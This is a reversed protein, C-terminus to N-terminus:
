GRDLEGTDVAVWVVLSIEELEIPPLAQPQKWPQYGREKVFDAIQKTLEEGSGEGATILKRLAREERVGRPAELADCIRDSEENGMEPPRYNRVHAAADRFVRPIKPALNAPDTAVTWEAMIDDRARQWASYAADRLDDPMVRTTEPGCTIARLCGLSDNVIPRIVDMPVFRMFVKDDIRACFFHGREKGRRLGSGAGGPIGTIAAEMGESLAKRLEQRYEEGSHANVDEGGTEFISADENRLRAIEEATEAFNRDVIQIGPIVEDDLGISAAAQALKVRIIRELNLMRDIQQDPFICTIWVDSHPSGIRDVRGHRQVLRMPNWPLDYNIIRAAQQLNMGEALVDTTILIDFRDHAKGSPAESSVPAFGYVAERRSVDSYGESGRVVALRGRYAALRRDTALKDELFEAIWEVTDAFYSFILVKRRNRTDEEGIGHTEAEKLIEVLKEVLIELKPDNKARVTEARARFGNFIERDNRIDRRLAAINYEGSDESEGGALIEDWLEEDDSATLEALTEPTPVRGQDLATLFADHGAIIRELTNTFAKASSEFRKLLGTRILGVLAMERAETKGEGRYKSPWYRAMTLAPEGDEPALAQAFEGFFGPLLDELDYTKSEVHPRPFQITLREGGKTEIRDNPYYKKVFHRTRRVTTADLIDFLLEPRLSFPDQRSAEDFRRRISPIGADAFVSDHGVFYALLNYLDWLSNNVPTASMMVVQKPPDGALLKRLAHARSTDSHRFAHAEDIVILSYDAIKAGLHHLNGGLQIDGAVEEFSKVEIGLQYRDKFRAWTGDRLAAPSILLARKRQREITDRLLEGALFTKGLGVSDAIIVGNYRELIRRARDLGDNQFRTLVIRGVEKAEEALESRYREWLVRLYILYPAYEEFRAQYIAALDFRVADAWLDEFWGEVRQTVSPQYSGLNLELNSTLGAATFNSSGSIVGQGNEFVFAKGHLFKKEYRRVEIRGSALFDLLRHIHRDTTPNFGLLDRDRLLGAENAALAEGLLRRELREGRPEGLRRIRRAPPPAPEAGLLLRVQGCKELSDAIRGFGDPNFYGTAISVRVPNVHNAALWDLRTALATVLLNEDRNDVFEPQHALFSNVTM